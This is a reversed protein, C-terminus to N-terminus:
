PKEALSMLTDRRCICRLTTAAMGYGFFGAFRMARALFLKFM